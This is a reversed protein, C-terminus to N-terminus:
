RAINGEPVALARAGYLAPARKEEVPRNSPLEAIHRALGALFAPVSRSEQSRQIGALLTAYVGPNQAVLKIAGALAQADVREALVGTVGDEIQEKLGGVPTSVVPLGQGLALSAVGSQSAETHSLVVAHYRALIGAMEEAALWRNVVEAEMASLRARNKGLNGQGFVGLQLAVGEGRLLEVADVLVDLGKYPLIRGLFLVRFPEGPAPFAPSAVPQLRLEPLFLRRLRHAAVFGKTRLQNEVHASLAIALDSDHFGLTTWSAILSRLDGPHPIADHVLTILRAGAKKVARALLHGWVHPMLLVVTDIRDRRLRTLIQECLRRMRWVCFLAGGSSRFTEVPELADGLHLFDGFRDNQRSISFAAHAIPAAPVADALRLVLESLGRRGWYVFLIRPESAGSKRVIQSRDIFRHRTLDTELALNSRGLPPM